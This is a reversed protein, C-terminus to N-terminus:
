EVRRAISKLELRERVVGLDKGPSPDTAHGWYQDGVRSVFTEGVELSQIVLCKAAVEFTVTEEDDLTVNRDLAEDLGSM